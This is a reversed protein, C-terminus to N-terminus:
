WENRYNPDIKDNNQKKFKIISEKIDNLTLLENWLDYAVSIDDGVEINQCLLIDANIYNNISINCQDKNSNTKMSLKLTTNSKINFFTEIIIDVNSMKSIYTYHKSLLSEMKIASCSVNEQFM